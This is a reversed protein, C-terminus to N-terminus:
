RCTPNLPGILMVIGFTTIIPEVKESM